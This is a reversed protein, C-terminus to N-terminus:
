NKEIEDLSHEMESITKRAEDLNAAVVMGVIFSQGLTKPTAEYLRTPLFRGSLAFDSLARLIPALPKKISASWSQSVRANVRKVAAGHLLIQVTSGVIRFNLDFVFPNGSSNIGIDFGAIGRYGMSRAKEAIDTAIAIVDNPPFEDPSIRSGCQKAPKSFLQTAAGLYRVSSDLIAMNLCWCSAIELAEEVRIGQLEDKRAAFWKMAQTRSEKDPCFIVDRGGGSAGAVCAKMFVEKQPHFNGLELLRDPPVIRHCPLYEDDVLHALNAKDNLWNYLSVPCVLDDAASLEPPPPYFYALKYGEQIFDKAISIAEEKKRFTKVNAAPELGAQRFFDNILPTAANQHCILPMDGMVAMTSGTLINLHYDKNNNIWRILHASSMPALATRPPFLKSFVAAPKISPLFNM